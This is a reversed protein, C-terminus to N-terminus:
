VTLTRGALQPSGARDVFNRVLRQLQWRVWRQNGDFLIPELGRRWEDPWRSVIDKTAVLPRGALITAELSNADAACLTEAPTGGGDRVLVMDAPTGGVIRGEGNRLRLISCPRSTVMSYLAEPPVGLALAIQIEEFIDFSKEASSGTGLAIRHNSIVFSSDADGGGSIVTSPCWVQSAGSRHLLTVVEKDIGGGHVVVTRDTLLHLQQLALVAQKTEGPGSASLHIVFPADGPTAVFRPVIESPEISDSWGYNKVVRIPFGDAFVSGSQEEHDLVTTVGSMVNKLAGMWLAAERPTDNRLDIMSALHDQANIMGPLLMYGSLDIVLDDEARQAKALAPRDYVGRIRDPDLVIDAQVSTHPGLAVRAGILHCAKPRLRRYNVHKLRDGSLLRRRLHFVYIAPMHRVQDFLDPRVINEFLRKEPHGLRPEMLSELEFGASDFKQRIESLEHVKVAIGEPLGEPALPKRWGLRDTEPHFDILYLDAGPVTIEALKDALATVDSIYSLAFSCIIADALGIDPEDLEILQGTAAARIDPFFTTEVAKAGRAHLRLMEHDLAYGIGLVVKDRVNVLANEMVRRYLALVPSIHRDHIPATQAFSERLDEPQGDKGSKPTAPV